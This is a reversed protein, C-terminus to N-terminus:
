TTQATTTDDRESAPSELVGTLHRRLRGALSDVVGSGVLELVQKRHMRWRHLLAESDELGAPEALAPAVLELANPLAFFTALGRPRQAASLGQLFPPRQEALPADRFALLINLHVLFAAVSRLASERPSRELMQEFAAALKAAANLVELDDEALTRYAVARALEADRLVCVADEWHLPPGKSRISLLHTLPTRRVLAAVVPTVDVATFLETFGAHSESREVRRVGPWRSLRRPPEQGVFSASGTWWSMKVDTRSLDFFAHLLGHRAMVRLRSSSRSRSALQQSTAIVKNRASQSLAWGEAAPHVLFLLNHVAAALCLEDMDFVLSPPRVVLESLVTTRAEDIAVVEISSHPLEEEYRTLDAVSLPRAVHADGGAVLPLVFDRLFESCSRQAM